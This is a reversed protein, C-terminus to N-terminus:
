DDIEQHLVRAAVRCILEYAITNAAQAIEEVPLDRGWLLVPDGIHISDQADTVDVCIMDMSVRGVLPYRRGHIMVPTGEAVHRPYGDGYGASIVAIQSERAATWTGSYGVREGPKVVNVAIVTSVLDMVPELGLEIGTKDMFPSVGYLMIGPRIWDLHSAQHRLVAASNAISKEGAIADTFSLFTDLQQQTVSHDSDDASSYHSMLKIEPAVWDLARLTAAIASLETPLIGLRHMGTEIKIWVPLSTDLPVQQLLRIQEETYLVLECNLAQAQKLQQGDQVGELLVIPQTIAKARLVEAEKLRAVGFADAASLATAARILGHGYGNAKIIAMIKTNPAQQKAFQLNHSFAARRILATTGQEIM